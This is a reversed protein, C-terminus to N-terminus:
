LMFFEKIGSLLFQVALAMVIFGMMRSFADMGNHSIYKSIIPGIRLIFYSAICCLLIAILIFVFDITSSVQSTLGLVVSISGPGALLPLALPSFSIDKQDKAAETGKHTLKDNEKPSLMLWGTQLIILGGAVRIGPISIGFFSIIYSGALLFITLIIFMYISSKKAIEAREPNTKDETLSNFIPLASFPNVVSIISIFAALILAIRGSLVNSFFTEIALSEM